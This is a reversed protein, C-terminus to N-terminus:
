EKPGSRRSSVWEINGRKGGDKGREEDSVEEIKVTYRSRTYKTGNSYSHVKSKSDEPNLGVTQSGYADSDAGLEGDAEIYKSWIAVDRCGGFCKTLPSGQGNAWENM